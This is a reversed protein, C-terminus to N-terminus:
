IRKKLLVKKVIIKNNNGILFESHPQQTKLVLSAKNIAQCFCELSFPKLLYDVVNLNCSEHM